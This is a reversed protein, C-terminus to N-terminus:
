DLLPQMNQKLSVSFMESSQHPLLELSLQTDEPAAALPRTNETPDHYVENRSINRSDM